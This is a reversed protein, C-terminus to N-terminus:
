KSKEQQQKKQLYDDIAERILSNVYLGSQDALEKLVIHTDDDLLVTLRKQFRLGKQRPM